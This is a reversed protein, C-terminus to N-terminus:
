KRVLDEVTVDLASAVRLLVELTPVHAGSEVRQYNSPAMDCLRALERVGRGRALRLCRIRAAIREGLNGSPQHAARYTADLVYRVHDVGVDETNGGHRVLRIGDGGHIIKADTVRPEPALGLTEVPVRVAEGDQLVCLLRGSGDIMAFRARWEQPASVAAKETAPPKRKTNKKM